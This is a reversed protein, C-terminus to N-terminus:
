LVEKKVSQEKEDIKVPLVLAGKKGDVIFFSYTISYLPVDYEQLKEEKGPM